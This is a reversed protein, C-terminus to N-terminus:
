ASHCLHRKILIEICHEKVLVFGGHNLAINFLSFERQMKKEMIDYQVFNLKKM